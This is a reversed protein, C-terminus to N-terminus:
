SPVLVLRAVREPELLAFELAPVCFSGPAIVTVPALGVGDLFACMRAAFAGSEDPLDPLYVRRQEALSDFLEPWVNAESAAPLLIVVPTGAGAGFRQYRTSHDAARVQAWGFPGRAAAAAVELTNTM